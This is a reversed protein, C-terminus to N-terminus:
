DLVTFYVRVPPPSGNVTLRAMCVVFHSDHSRFQVGIRQGAFAGYLPARHCHPRRLTRGATSGAGQRAFESGCPSFASLTMWRAPEFLSPMISIAAGAQVDSGHGVSVEM